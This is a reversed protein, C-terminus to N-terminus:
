ISLDNLQLKFSTLSKLLAAKGYFYKYHIHNGNTNTFIALYSQIYPSVAKDAGLHVQVTTNPGFRDAATYSGPQATNIRSHQGM